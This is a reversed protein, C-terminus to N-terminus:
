LLPVGAADAPRQVERLCRLLSSDRTMDHIRIGRVSEATRLEQTAGKSAYSGPTVFIDTVERVVRGWHAGYEDQAHRKSLLWEVEEPMFTTSFVQFPFRPDGQIHMTAAHLRKWNAEKGSVENSSIPGIVFGVRKKGGSYLEIGDLVIRTLEPLTTALEANRRLDEFLRGSDAVLGRATPAFGRGAGLSIEEAAGQRQVRIRSTMAM